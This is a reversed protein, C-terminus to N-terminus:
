RSRDPLNQLWAAAGGPDSQAWGNVVSATSEDTDRDRLMRRLLLWSRQAAVRQGRPLSRATSLLKWFEATTMVNDEWVLNVGTTWKLPLLPQAHDQIHYLSRYSKDQEGEIQRETRSLFGDDNRDLERFEKM